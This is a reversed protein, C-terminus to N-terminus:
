LIDFTKKILTLSIPKKSIKCMRDLDEIFKKLKAFSREIRMIIYDMIAPNIKLQLDTLHKLLVAKLLEEDPPYISVDPIALIRSRLDQLKFDLKTPALDSTLLLYQSNEHSFNILHLLSEEEIEHIDELILAKHNILYHLNYFDLNNIIKANTLKQWIHALHTKGSGKEGHLLIIRSYIGNHWEPWQNLYTFANKNAPSIFFDEALYVPQVPFKFYLQQLNRVKFLISERILEM